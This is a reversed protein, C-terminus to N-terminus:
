ALVRECEKICDECSDACTGCIEHTEAHKLCEERCDKCVDITVRAYAPLHPSQHSAMWALTDCAQALESVRDLCDALTTDGTKLLDICHDACLRGDRVCHLASRVLAGDPQQHHHHQHKKKHQGGHQDAVAAGAALAAAAASARVMFDRRSSTSDNQM